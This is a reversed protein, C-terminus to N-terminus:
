IWTLSDGEARKGISVWVAQIAVAASTAIVEGGFEWHSQRPALGFICVILVTLLTGLTGAARGPLHPFKLIQELNVSIAVFLLGLLAASAGVAAVFFDHWEIPAYASVM